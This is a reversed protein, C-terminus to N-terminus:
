VRAMFRSGLVKFRFSLVKFYFSSVLAFCSGHVMFRLFSPFYFHFAFRIPKGCPIRLWARKRRADLDPRAYPPYRRNSDLVRYEQWDSLPLSSPYAPRPHRQWFFPNWGPTESEFGRSRKKYGKLNPGLGVLLLVFPTGRTPGRFCIATQLWRM